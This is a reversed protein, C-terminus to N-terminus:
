LRGALIENLKNELWTDGIYIESEWIEHYLYGERQVVMQRELDAQKEYAQHWYDGLIEICLFPQKDTIVFDLVFGGIFNRGGLDTRQFAFKHPGGMMETLKKHVIREPLTGYFGQSARSELEDIGFEPKTRRRDRLVSGTQSKVYIRPFKSMQSAQRKGRLSKIGKLPGLGM